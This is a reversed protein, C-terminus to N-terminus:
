STVVPRTLVITEAAGICRRVGAAFGFSHVRHWSSGCEGFETCDQDGNTGLPREERHGLRDLRAQLAQGDRPQHFVHRAAVTLSQPGIASVLPFTGV